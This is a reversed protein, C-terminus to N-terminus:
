WSSAPLLPPPSYGSRLRRPGWRFGPSLAIQADRQTLVADCILEDLTGAFTGRRYLLGETRALERTLMAEHPARLHAILKAMEADPAIADALVPILRYSFDKVRGGEVQLDLRSVFKGHSGSTILLTQGIQMPQPLADHTHATFIVDIGDVRGALKRDVDFGNHSLLVVVQAGRSRAHVVSKRLEDERIGFSWTPILWAPNAIPTYPFAQGIVAISVGGKEFMRTSPFVPDGFDTDRINGALFPIGSSGARDIGGFLEEVLKTLAGPDFDGVAVFHAGTAGVLEDYCRRTEQLAAQQLEAIREDTTQPALWHGRPYPSLHRALRESAIASPDSKQSEAGTLSARKLEEFESAPFVPERLVEAVLRLTDALHERRTELTAGGASVKVTAKMREFADRLESRTHRKTGRLLMEGALTCATNRGRTSEENGWHLDLKAVVTAGRTRKPLLAVRVDNALTRRQLRAEINRPSPDFAEGMALAAGGRYGELAARMHPVPDRGTDAIRGAFVSVNSPAGGALAQVIARVQDLTMVATVNLKIGDHSLRHVLDCAPASRTDSVPIKVYVHDGWAAIERAQREMEGFDDSCVEFSVPRDPVAQLVARAFARYDAVGAKRMLTPNTTFGKVRPDRALAAIGDVDAGDAYIKTRLDAITM